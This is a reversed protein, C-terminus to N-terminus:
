EGEDESGPEVVGRRLGPSLRELADRMASLDTESLEGVRVERGPTAIQGVVAGRRTPLPPVAGGSTGAEDKKKMEPEMEAWVALWKCDKSQRHGWAASLEYVISLGRGNIADASPERAWIEVPIRKVPQSSVTFRLRDGVMKFEVWVQPAATNLVGNAVLEGLVLEAADRDFQPLGLLIGRLLERTARAESKIPQFARRVPWTPVPEPLRAAAGGTRRREPHVTSTWDAALGGYGNSTQIVDLRSGRGPCGASHRCRTEPAM